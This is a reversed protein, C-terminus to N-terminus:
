FKKTNKLYLIKSVFFFEKENFCLSLKLDISKFLFLFSLFNFIFVYIFFGYNKKLSNNFVDKYCKLFQINAINNIDTFRKYLKDKDFKIDDIFPLSIKVLCSCKAKKNTYNYEVLDCDGECLTM